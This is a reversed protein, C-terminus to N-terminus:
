GFTLVLVVLPVVLAVHGLHAGDGPERTSAPELEGVVTQHGVVRRCRLVEGDVLHIGVVGGRHQLLQRGAPSPRTNMLSASQMSGIGSM